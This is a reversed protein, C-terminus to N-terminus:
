LLSRDARVTEAYACRPKLFKPRLSFDLTFLFNYGTAGWVCTWTFGVRSSWLAGQPEATTGRAGGVVSHHLALGGLM